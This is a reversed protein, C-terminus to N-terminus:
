KNSNLEKFLSKTLQKIKQTAANNANKGSTPTHEMSEGQHSAAEQYINVKNFLEKLNSSM